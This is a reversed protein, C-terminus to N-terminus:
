SPVQQNYQEDTLLTSGAVLFRIFQGGLDVLKVVGDEIGLSTKAQLLQSATIYHNVSQTITLHLSLGESAGLDSNRGLLDATNATLTTAIYRWM